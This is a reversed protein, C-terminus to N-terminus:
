FIVKLDKSANGALELVETNLYELIAPSYVCCCDCGCVFITPQGLPGCQVALISATHPFGVAKTKSKGSDKGAKCGAMKFQASVGVLLSSVFGPLSEAFNKKKKEESL